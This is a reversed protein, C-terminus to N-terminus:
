RQLFRIMQCLCNIRIYTMLCSSCRTTSSTPEFGCHYLLDIMTDKSPRAMFNTVAAEVSPSPNCYFLVPRQITNVPFFVCALMEKAYASRSENTELIGLLAWSDDISYMGIICIDSALLMMVKPISMSEALM